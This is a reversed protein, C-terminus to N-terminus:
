SAPRRRRAFRGANDRGPVAPGFVLYDPTTGFADCLALFTALKINDVVGLEWQSVAARSVGLLQGLAEQSLGRALRLNRIRDGMTEM